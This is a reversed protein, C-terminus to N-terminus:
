LASKSRMGLVQNDNWRLAETFLETANALGLKEKIRSCYTQVTKISIHLRDAVSRTDYGSGLLRFIELERDSLAEIPSSEENVRGQIFKEAFAETMERSIALRGALVDRIAAIIKKTSERKQVYGRAGVRIAREAYLREDHISLVIAPVSPCEAKMAKVLELGSGADLTIDVIVLDPMKALIAKLADKVSEAEGCVLLDGQQRILDALAHRVLPHDDVLFIRTKKEPM